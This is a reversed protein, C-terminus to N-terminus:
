VKTIYDLVSINNSEIKEILTENLIVKFICNSFDTKLLHLRKTEINFIICYFKTSSISDKLNFINIEKKNKVFLIIPISLLSSLLLLDLPCLYYDEDNIM